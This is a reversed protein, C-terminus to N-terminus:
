RQDGVVDPALQHGLVLLDLAHEGIQDPELVLILPERALEDAELHQERPVLRPLLVDQELAQAAGQGRGPERLEAGVDLGPEILQLERGRGPLIARPPFARPTSGHWRSRTGARSNRLSGSISTIACRSAFRPPAIATM